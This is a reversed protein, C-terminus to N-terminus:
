RVQVMVRQGGYEDEVRISAVRVSGSAFSVADAEVTVRCVDQLV